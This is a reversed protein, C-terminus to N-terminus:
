VASHQPAPLLLLAMLQHNAAQRSGVCPLSSFCLSKLYGWASDLLIWPKIHGKCAISACVELELRPLGHPEEWRALAPASNQPFQKGAAEADLHASGWCCQGPLLAQTLMLWPLWFMQPVAPPHLHGDWSPGHLARLCCKSREGSGCSSPFPSLWVTQWGWLKRLKPNKKGKKKKIWTM